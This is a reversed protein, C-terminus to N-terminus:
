LGLLVMKFPAVQCPKGTIGQAIRGFHGDAAAEEFGTLAIWPMIMGVARFNQDDNMSLDLVGARVTFVHLQTLPIGDGNWGVDPM